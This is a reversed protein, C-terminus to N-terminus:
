IHILSLLQQEFENVYSAKQQLNATLYIKEEKVKALEEKHSNLEQVLKFNAGEARLLKEKFENTELVKGELESTATLLKGSTTLRAGAERIFPSKCLEKVRNELEKNERYLEQVKLALDNAGTSAMEAAKLKMNLTALDTREQRLKNQSDDLAEKLYNVYTRQATYNDELTLFRTEIEQLKESKQRYENSFDKIITEPKAKSLSNVLHEETSQLQEKLRLILNDKESTEAPPATYSLVRPFNQSKSPLPVPVRAQSAKVSDKLKARLCENEKQLKALKDTATALPKGAREQKIDKTLKTLQITLLKVKEQLENYKSSMRVNEEYLNLFKESKEKDPLKEFTKSSINLKRTKNLGQTNPRHQPTERSPTTERIGGLEEYTHLQSTKPTVLQSERTEQNSTIHSSM